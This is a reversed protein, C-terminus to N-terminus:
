LARGPLVDLLAFILTGVAFGIAAWHIFDELKKNM